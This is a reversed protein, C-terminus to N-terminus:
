ALPKTYRTYSRRVAMGVREYLTLAGTRSETSLGCRRKGREYFSSFADYLLARAIGRHRHPAKTALQQVWGERDEAYDFCLAAGVLEDGDFALRSLEPSFSPHRIVFAAWEDFPLSTRGEWENFADDILRYATREDTAPDYARLTIGEPPDHTAPPETFGIELIWSIWAPEYGNTRFLEAATANNDTVTQSVKGAGDEAARRETWRLLATGIGRGYYAPHTDAEAREKYVDAWGVPTDGDLVIVCDTAPDFGVRGFDMEVDDVDIEAVGDLHEEAAAVLDFVVGVDERSAARATYGAPLEIVADDM